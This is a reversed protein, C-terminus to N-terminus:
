KKKNSYTYYFVNVLQVLQIFFDPIILDIFLWYDIFLEKDDNIQDIISIISQQVGLSM